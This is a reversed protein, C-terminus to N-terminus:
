LERKVKLFLDARLATPSNWDKAVNIQTLKKLKGDIAEFSPNLVLNNQNQGIANFAFLLQLSFIKILTKM